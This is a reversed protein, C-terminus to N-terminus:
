GDGKEKMWKKREEMALQTEEDIKIEGQDGGKVM